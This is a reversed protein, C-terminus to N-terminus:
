VNQPRVGKTHNNATEQKRQIFPLALVFYMMYGSEIRLSSNYFVLVCCLIATLLTMQNYLMNGMRKRRCKNAFLACSVFFSLYIGLGLYGTELFVMASTFWTYHLYQYQRFFPTNCVAFASTDCNGLGLGFFQEFANIDLIRSLSPIASLRNIDVRSSYNDRTASEILGEYSFFNEFGFWEAVLSATYTIAVVSLLLITVKKISFRSLVTAGIILYIVVFFYFKMEAMAAVLLSAGCKLICSSFSETGNFTMLFARTVVISQFCLTFANSAGLIGFIGGLYDGSVGLFFFQFASLGTNIWFLVDMARFWQDVDKTDLLAVFTFFAIYFRFNNRFGWLFYAVSQYQILYIFATYCFFGIVLGFPLLLSKNLKIKRGLSLILLVLLIGDPFYKLYGLMGPMMSVPKFIVSWFAVMFAMWQMIPRDKMKLRYGTVRQLHIKKVNDVVRKM